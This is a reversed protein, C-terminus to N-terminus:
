VTRHAPMRNFPTVIHLRSPPHPATMTATPRARAASPPSAGASSVDPASIAALYTTLSAPPRMPTTKEASPAKSAADSGEFLQTHFKFVPALSASIGSRRRIAQEGSKLRKT